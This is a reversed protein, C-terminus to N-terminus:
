YLNRDRVIKARGGPFENKKEKKEEMKKGASCYGLGFRPRRSLFPKFLRAAAVNLHYLNVAGVSKKEEM